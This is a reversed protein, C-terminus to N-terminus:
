GAFSFGLERLGETIPTFTQSIEGDKFKIYELDGHVGGKFDVGQEVLPILPKGLFDAGAMEQILWVYDEKPSIIAIVLEKALLRRKVKTSVKEPSYGEGTAVEFGLLNLFKTLQYAYSRGKEDFSHAIFVQKKLPTLNKSPEEAKAPSAAVLQLVKEIRELHGLGITATSRALEIRIRNKKGWILTFFAPEGRTAYLGNLTEICGLEVEVQLPPETSKAIFQLFDEATDVEIHQSFTSTRYKEAPSLVWDDRKRENAPISEAIATLLDPLLIWNIEKLQYERILIM